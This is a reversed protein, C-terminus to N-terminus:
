RELKPDVKLHPMKGKIKAAGHFLSFQSQFISISISFPFNFFFFFMCLSHINEKAVLSLQMNFTKKKAM